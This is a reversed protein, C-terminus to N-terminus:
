IPTLAPPENKRLAYNLDMFELHLLLKNKWVKYNDDSLYANDFIEDPIILPQIVGISFFCFYVYKHQVYISGVCLSYLVYGLIHM